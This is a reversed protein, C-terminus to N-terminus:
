KVIHVDVQSFPIEIGAEDFSLKITELLDWKAKWYDGPATWGRVGLTVASDGLSDVFVTIDEEKCILPHERFSRELIEKAAKIDAQYGIGVLLDLRRKEMATVDTVTSNALSGNPITIRKNDATLLTTYVLGIMSVTGEGEPCIIYEGVKFPKVLLLLVGGAFNQLTGQLSLSLALSATGLITVLSATNLGLQGAIMFVLIGYLCVEILSKLFKSAGAEVGAREFSRGAFRRIFGIAKKGILFVALAILLKWCLNLFWPGAKELMATFAGMDVTESPLEALLLLRDSISM